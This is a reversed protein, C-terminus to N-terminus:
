NFLDRLINVAEDLITWDNEMRRQIGNESTSQPWLENWNNKRSQIEPGNNSFFVGYEDPDADNLLLLRECNEKLTEMLKEMSKIQGEEERQLREQRERAMRNRQVLDRLVEERKNRCRKAALSNKARRRMNRMEELSAGHHQAIWPLNELPCERVTRILEHNRM